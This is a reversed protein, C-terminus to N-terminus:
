GLTWETYCGTGTGKQHEEIYLVFRNSRGYGDLVAGGRGQCWAVLASTGYFRNASPLLETGLPLMPLVADLLSEQVDFGM